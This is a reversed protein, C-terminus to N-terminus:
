QDVSASDASIRYVPGQPWYTSVFDEDILLTGDAAWVDRHVYMTVGDRAPQWLEYVGPDASYDIEEVTAGDTPVIADYIPDSLEVEYGTDTGHIAVELETGNTVAARIMIWGDTSNTFRFDLQGPQVMADFGPAWGGQEYMFNRYPHSWWETIPLGALLVARFISTSLQCIGGGVDYGAIGAEGLGAAVFGNEGSISGLAENFSFEGGAPILIGDVLDAARRINTLRGTSSGSFDSSGTALLDTAGYETLLADVDGAAPSVEVPIEVEHTGMSIAQHIRIELQDRDVTRGDRPAGLRPYAGSEIVRPRFPEQDIDDAVREVIGRIAEDDIVIAPAGDSDDLVVHRALEGPAITWQEEATYLVFPESLATSIQTLGYQLDASRVTAPSLRVDLDITPWTFGNLERILDQRLRDVNVLYGASDESVLVSEGSVQLAAEVPAIELEEMLGMCYADLEDRDIVLPPKVMAPGTQLRFIRLVGSVIDRGQGVNTVRAIAEDVDVSIGLERLTPTWTHEGYDITVRQSEYTDAQAHIVAAAEDYAMGGVPVGIVVVGPVVKGRSQAITGGGLALLGVVALCLALRAWIPAQRIAAGVFWIGALAARGATVPTEQQTGQTRNYRRPFAGFDV